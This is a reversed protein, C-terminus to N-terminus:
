IYGCACTNDTFSCGIIEELFHRKQEVTLDNVELRQTYLRDKVVSWLDINSLLSMATADDSGDILTEELAEKAYFVFILITRQEPNQGIQLLESIITDLQGNVQTPTLSSADVDQEQNLHPSVYDWLTKQILWSKAPSNVDVNAPILGPYHHKNVQKVSLQDVPLVYEEATIDTLTLLVLTALTFCIYKGM